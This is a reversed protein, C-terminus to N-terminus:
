GKEAVSSVFNPVDKAASVKLLGAILSGTKKAFCNYSMSYFIAM